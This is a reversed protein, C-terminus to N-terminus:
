KHILSQLAIFKFFFNDAPCDNSRKKFSVLASYFLYAFITIFCFLFARRIVLPPLIRTPNIKNDLPTVLMFIRELHLAWCSVIDMARPLGFSGHVHKAARM